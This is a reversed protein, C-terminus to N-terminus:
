LQEFPREIGLQKVEQETLEPSFRSCALIRMENHDSMPRHPRTINVLLPSTTEVRMVEKETSEITWLGTRLPPDYKFRGHLKEWRPDDPSIDVPGQNSFDLEADYWVTYTGQCNLIPINLSVRRSDNDLSDVHTRMPNTNSNVVSFATSIWKSYIGVDKLWNVFTPIHQELDSGPMCCFDWWDGKTSLNHDSYKQWTSDKVSLFEKQIQELNPINFKSYYWNPKFPTYTNM